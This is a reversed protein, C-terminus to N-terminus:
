LAKSRPSPFPLLPCHYPSPLTKKKINLCEHTGFLDQFIERPPGPFDQILGLNKILLLTPVRYNFHVYIQGKINLHQQKAILLAEPRHFLRSCFTV